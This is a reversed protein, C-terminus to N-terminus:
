SPLCPSGDHCPCFYVHSTLLLCQVQSLIIKSMRLKLHCNWELLFKMQCTVADDRGQEGLRVKMCDTMQREELNPIHRFFPISSVEHIHWICSRM